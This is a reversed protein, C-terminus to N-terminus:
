LKKNKDMSMKILRSNNDLVKIHMSNTGLRLIDVENENIDLRKNINQMEGYIKELMEFVKEEGM